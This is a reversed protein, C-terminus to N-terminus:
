KSSEYEDGNTKTLTIYEVNCKPCCLNSVIGEGEYGYDEFDFDGGWIVFGGCYFCKGRM